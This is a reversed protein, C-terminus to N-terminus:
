IAEPRVWCFISSTLLEEPTTQTNSATPVHEVLRQQCHVNGRAGSNRSEPTMDCYVTMLYGELLYKKYWKVVFKWNIIDKVILLIVFDYINLSTHLFSETNM